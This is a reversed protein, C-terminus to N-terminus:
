EICKRKNAKKYSFTEEVINYLIGVSSAYIHNEDVYKNCELNLEEKTCCKFTKFEKGKYNLTKLKKVYKITENIVQNELRLSFTSCLFNVNTEGSYFLFIRGIRLENGLMPPVFPPDLKLDIEELNDYIVDQRNTIIVFEDKYLRKASRLLEKMSNCSYDVVTYEYNYKELYHIKSYFKSMTKNVSETTANLYAFKLQCKESTFKFIRSNQYRSM